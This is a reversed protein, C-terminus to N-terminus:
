RAPRATRAAPELRELRPLADAQALTLRKIRAGQAEFRRSVLLYRKPKLAKKQYDLHALEM